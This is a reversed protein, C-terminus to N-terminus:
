RHPLVFRGREVVTPATWTGGQPWCCRSSAWMARRCLLLSLRRGRRTLPTRMADGRSCCKLSRPTAGRRVPMFLRSAVKGRLTGSADGRSCCKLSRPMARRRPSTSRPSAKWNVVDLQCGGAILIKVVELYGNRASTHLATDGVSDVPKCLLGHALLAKVEDARGNMASIYLALRPEQCVGGALLANIMKKAAAKTDDKGRMAEIEARLCELECRLIEAKTMHLTHAVDAASPRRAPDHQACAVVLEVIQPPVGFEPGIRFHQEAVNVNHAVDRMADFTAVDWPLAGTLVEFMVVGFSYIDQSPADLPVKSKLVEPAAFCDVMVCDTVGVTSATRVRRFSFDFDIWAPLSSDGVVVHDEIPPKLKHMLSLRGATRQLM